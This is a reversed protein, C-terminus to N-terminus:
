WVFGWSDKTSNLLGISVFGINIVVSESESIQTWSNSKFRSQCIWGQWGVFGSKCIWDKCFPEMQSLKYHNPLIQFSKCPNTYLDQLKLNKM